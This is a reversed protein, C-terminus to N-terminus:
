CLRLIRLLHKGIDNLEYRVGVIVTTGEVNSDSIMLLGSSYLNNTVYDDKPNPKVYDALRDVDDIYVKNVASCLRLFMDNDINGMIRDRYLMGMVDAKRDEEATYLMHMLYEYMRKRDKKDLKALFAEKKEQEIDESKTLFRGIKWVFKLDMFCKGVKGLKILPGVWPFDKMEELVDSFAESELQLAKKIFKNEEKAVSLDFIDNEEM